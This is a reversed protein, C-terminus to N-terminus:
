TLNEELYEVFSACIRNRAVMHQRNLSVFQRRMRQLQPLSVPNAPLTLTHGDIATEGGGEGPHDKQWDSIRSVADQTIKDLDYLYDSETIPAQEMTLPSRFACTKCM